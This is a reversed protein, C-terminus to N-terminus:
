RVTPHCGASDRWPIRTLDSKADTPLSVECRGLHKIPNLGRDRGRDRDRVPKGVDPPRPIDYELSLPTRFTRDGDM